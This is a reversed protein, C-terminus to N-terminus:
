KVAAQMEEAPLDIEARLRLDMERATRNRVEDIAEANKEEEMTRVTQGRNRVRAKRSRREPLINRSAM